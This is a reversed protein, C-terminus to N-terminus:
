SEDTEGKLAQWFMKCASCNNKNAEGESCLIDCRKAIKIIREREQKAGERRAEDIRADWLPEDPILALIKKRTEVISPYHGIKGAVAKVAELHYDVIIEDIESLELRDLRHKLAEAIKEIYVKVQVALEDLRDDTRLEPDLLINIEANLCALYWEIVSNFGKVKAHETDLSLEKDQKAKNHAEARTHEERIEEISSGTTM